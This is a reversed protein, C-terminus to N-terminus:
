IIYDSHQSRLLVVREDSQPCPQPFIQAVDLQYKSRLRELREHRKGTIIPLFKKQFLLRLEVLTPSCKFAILLDTLIDLSHDLDSQDIITLISEVTSSSSVELMSQFQEIDFNRVLAERVDTPILLRLPLYCSLSNLGQRTTDTWVPATPKNEGPHLLSTM